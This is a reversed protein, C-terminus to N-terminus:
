ITGTLPFLRGEEGSKVNFNALHMIVYGGLDLNVSSLPQGQSPSSNNDNEVIEYSVKTRLGGSSEVPPATQSDTTLM